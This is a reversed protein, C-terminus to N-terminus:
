EDEKPPPIQLNLTIRNRPDVTSVRRVQSAVGKSTAQVEYDRTFELGSFQYRGEATTYSATKKGTTLDTLTVTAGAIPSDSEDSVLGTVLREPKKEKASLDSAAGALVCVVALSILARRARAPEESTRFVRWTEKMVASGESGSERKKRKRTAAPSSM